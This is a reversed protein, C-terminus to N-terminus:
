GFRCNRGIAISSPRWTQENMALYNSDAEGLIDQRGCGSKFGVRGGRAPETTHASTM